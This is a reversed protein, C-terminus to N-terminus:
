SALRAGSALLHRIRRALADDRLDTAGWRVVGLGLARLSDERRKEAYLADESRYKMRGDCEGVLSAQRWLFDVRAVFLGGRDHITVQMQPLPLHHRIFYVWSASELPSERRGDILGAAKEARVIGRLGAQNACAGSLQGATFLGRRLAADGVALADALPMTRAVDCWTRVPTTVRMPIEQVETVSLTSQSFRVRGRTGRWHGPPVAVTVLDRIRSWLPLGHVVAASTYAVVASGHRRLVEAARARHVFRDREHVDVIGDLVAAPVYLGRDIARWRGSRVQQRVQDRTLGAAVAQQMSFSEPLDVAHDAIRPM